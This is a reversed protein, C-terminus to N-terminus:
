KGQFDIIKKNIIKVLESSLISNIAFINKIM